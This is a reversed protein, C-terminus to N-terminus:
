HRVAARIRLDGEQFQISRILAGLSAQKMHTVDLTKAPRRIDDSLM